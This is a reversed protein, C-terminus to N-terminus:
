LGGLPQEEAFGPLLLSPIGSPIRDKTRRREKVKLKNRRFVSLAEHKLNLSKPFTCKFVPIQLLSQSICLFLDSNIYDIYYLQRM